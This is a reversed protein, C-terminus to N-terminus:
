WFGALVLEILERVVFGSLILCHEPFVHFSTFLTGRAPAGRTGFNVLCVTDALTNRRNAICLQVRQVGKFFTFNINTKVRELATKM